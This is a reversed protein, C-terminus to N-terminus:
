SNSLGSAISEETVIQYTNSMDFMFDYTKNELMEITYFAQENSNEQYTKVFKINENEDFYYRILVDDKSQMKYEEFYYKESNLIEYGLTVFADNLSSLSYFLIDMNTNKNETRNVKYIIKNDEDVYYYYKSDALIRQSKESYYTSTMEGKKSFEENSVTVNGKNDTMELKYKIHFDNQFTSLHKILTKTYFEKEEEETYLPKPLNDLSIQNNKENAKNKVVIITIIIAIIILLIIGIKLAKKMNKNM